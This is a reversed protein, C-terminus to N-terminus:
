ITIDKMCGIPTHLVHGYLYNSPQTCTGNDVCEIGTTYPGTCILGSSPNFIFIIFSVVSIFLLVSIITLAVDRILKGM